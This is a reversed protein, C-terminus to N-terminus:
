LVAARQLIVVVASTPALRKSKQDEQQLIMCSVQSIQGDSLIRECKQVTSGTGGIELFPTTLFAPSARRRAVPARNSTLLIEQVLSILVQRISVM